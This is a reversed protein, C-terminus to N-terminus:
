LLARDQRYLTAFFADFDPWWTADAEWDDQQFDHHSDFNYFGVRPAGKGRYDLFLTEMYWQALVIMKDANKPFYSPEEEFDTFTELSDKFSGLITLPMLDEYGSFPSLDDDRPANADGSWVKEGVNGGNQKLYLTRLLPPLTIGLRAEQATLQAEDLNAVDELLVREGGQAVPRNDWHTFHNGRYFTDVTMRQTPASLDWTGTKGHADDMKRDMTESIRAELDSSIVEEVSLKGRELWILALGTVAIVGAFLGVMRWDGPNPGTMVESGMLSGVGRAIAYFIGVVIVQVPYGKAAFLAVKSVSQPALKRWKGFVDAMVFVAAVPLILWPSHGAFGLWVPFGLLIATFVLRGPISMARSVTSYGSM